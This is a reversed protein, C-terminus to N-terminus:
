TVRCMIGLGNSSGSLQKIWKLAETHLLIRNKKIKKPDVLSKALGDATAVLFKAFDLHVQPDQSAKAIERYKELSQYQHKPPYLSADLTGSSVVSQLEMEQRAPRSAVPYYNGMIMSSTQPAHTRHTENYMNQDSRSLGTRQELPAPMQERPTQIHELPAHMWHSNQAQSSVSEQTQASESLKSPSTELSKDNLRAASLTPSSHLAPMQIEPTEIKGSNM